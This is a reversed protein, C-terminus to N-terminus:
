PNPVEILIGDQLKGYKRNRTHVSVAGDQFFQHIEASILDGEAYLTRM